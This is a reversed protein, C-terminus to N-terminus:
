LAGASCAPLLLHLVNRFVIFLFSSDASGAGGIHPRLALTDIVMDESRTSLQM